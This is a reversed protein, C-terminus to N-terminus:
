PLDFSRPFMAFENVFELLRFSCGGLTPLAAELRFNSPPDSGEGSKLFIYIDHCEHFV